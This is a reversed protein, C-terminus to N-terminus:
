PKVEPGTQAAQPAPRKRRKRRNRTVLVPVLVAIGAALLCFLGIQLAIWLDSGLGSPSSASAATPQPTSAASLPTPTAPLTPRPTPAAAAPVGSVPVITPVATPTAPPTPQGGAPLRPAAGIAARWADELGDVDFGYVATLASDITEGRQLADLLLSIRQRGYREVLFNIVSYSVAYSLNARNSEESFGGSLSRLSPLSDNALAQEFLARQSDELGGEGVMALGEQVWTPVFSLCSFTLHGVLVHTLEHAVTRKGWDLQDPSIGIIVINHEPYAQGGTWSPEYLVAEQMDRSNAYIYIDIPSEPRLGVEQALRGLAEVAAQHLEDGFRAGGSYYYLNIDGGPIVQWDHVDDLWIIERRESQYTAGSSDGIQWRWWLRAGPPLSGSQRMEWTWQVEVRSAPTFSPFARAVVTGCTLQEAGYELVVSTIREGSEIVARFTVSEPFSLSAQDEVLRIGAQAHAPVIWGTLLCVLGVFTLLTRRM